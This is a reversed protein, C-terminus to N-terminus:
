LFPVTSPTVISRLSRNPVAKEASYTIFLINQTFSNYMSNTQKLLPACVCLIWLLISLQTSNSSNGQTIQAVSGAGVTLRSSRTITRFAGHGYACHDGRHPHNTLFPLKEELHGNICHINEAGRPAKSIEQVEKLM